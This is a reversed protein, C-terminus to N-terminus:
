PDFCLPRQWLTGLPGENQIWLTWWLKSERIVPFYILTSIVFWECDKLSINELRRRKAFPKVHYCKVLIHFVCCCDNKYDPSNAQRTTCFFIMFQTKEAYNVKFLVLWANLGLSCLLISQFCQQNSQMFADPM